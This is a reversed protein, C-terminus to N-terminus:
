RRQWRCVREGPHHAPITAVPHTSPRRGSSGGDGELSAKEASRVQRGPADSPNWGIQGDIVPAIRTEPAPIKSPSPISKITACHACGRSSILRGLGFSAGPSSERRDVCEPSIQKGAIERRNRWPFGEVSPELPRGDRAKLSIRGGSAPTARHKVAYGCDFFENPPAGPAFGCPEFPTGSSAATEPWCPTLRLWPERRDVAAGRSPVQREFGLCRGRCARVDPMNPARPLRHGTVAFPRRHVM